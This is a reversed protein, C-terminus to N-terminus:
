KNHCIKFCFINVQSFSSVPVEFYHFRLASCQDSYSNFLSWVCSVGTAMYRETRTLLICSFLCVCVYIFPTLSPLLHHLQANHETWLNMIVNETVYGFLQRDEGEEGFGM